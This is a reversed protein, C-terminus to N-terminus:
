SIARPLDDLLILNTSGKSVIAPRQELV